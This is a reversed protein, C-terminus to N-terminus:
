AMVPSWKHVCGYHSDHQITDLILVHRTSIGARRIGGFAEETDGIETSTNIVKKGKGPAESANTSAKEASGQCGRSEGDTHINQRFCHVTSSGGGM